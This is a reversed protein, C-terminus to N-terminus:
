YNDELVENYLDERAAYARFGVRERAVEFWRPQDDAFGIASIIVSWAGLLPKSADRIALLVPLMGRFADIVLPAAIGEEGLALLAIRALANVLSLRDPTRPDAAIAVLSPVAYVTGEYLTDQHCLAGLVWGDVADRGEAGALKALWDYAGHLLGYAGHRAALRHRDRADASRLPRAARTRRARARARRPPDRDGLARSRVRTCARHGGVRRGAVGALARVRRVRARHVAANSRARRRRWGQGSRPPRAATSSCGLALQADRPRPRPDRDAHDRHGPRCRRDLAHECTSSSDAATGDHRRALDHVTAVARRRPRARQWEHRRVAGDAPPALGAHRRGRASRGPDRGRALVRDRPWRERDAANRGRRSVGARAESVRRRARACLHDGGRVLM